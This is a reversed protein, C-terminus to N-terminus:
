GHDVEESVETATDIFTCKRGSPDGTITLKVPEGLKIATALVAALNLVDNPSAKELREILKSDAM